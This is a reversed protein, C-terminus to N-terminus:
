RQCVEPNENMKMIEASLTGSFRQPISNLLLGIIDRLLLSQPNFINNKYNSASFFFAELDELLM